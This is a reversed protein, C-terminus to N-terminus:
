AAYSNLSEDSVASTAGLVFVRGPRLRQLEAATEAPLADRLTLLVPAGDRAAAAGGTLADPFNTGAALYVVAVGPQFHARSVAVATAFRNKGALRTVQGDTLAELRQVVAPSIVGEGGLVVIRQPRLRGLEATVVPPVSDAGVLLVPGGTLAAVPGGALADPFNSQTAVYAVPVGPRFSDRSIAVATATRDSGALRLVRSM